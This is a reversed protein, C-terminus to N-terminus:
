VQHRATLLSHPSLATEKQDTSVDGEIGLLHRPAPGTPPPAPRSQLAWKM